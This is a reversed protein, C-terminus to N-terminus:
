IYAILRGAIIATMWLVLSSGALAKTGASVTAGTDWQEGHQRLLKQLLAANIIAMFIGTIKIIFAVHVIFFTAQAAFLALGSGLNVIFGVWALKLFPRLQVVPLAKFCGLIRLNLVFLIGVIVAMGLSHLTLLLPYGWSSTSIWDALASLELWELFAM